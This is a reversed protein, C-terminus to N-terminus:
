GRGSRKSGRHELFLPSGPTDPILTIYTQLERADISRFEKTLFRATIARVDRENAM